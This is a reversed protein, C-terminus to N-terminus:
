WFYNLTEKPSYHDADFILLSSNSDQTVQTKLSFVSIEGRESRLNYNNTHTNVKLQLEQTIHANSILLHSM